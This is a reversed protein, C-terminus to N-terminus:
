TLSVLPLIKDVWLAYMPGSFHEGDTAIFSEDSAARRSIGTIDAYRAGKRRTEIKNAANYADIENAILARDRGEGSPTVGWDPISVVIVHEPQGGAFRIATQLLKAFETQYGDLTYGKEPGRYQNNVGILLTVMDYTDQINEAAIGVLLEDTTWGTVAVIKPKDMTIGKQGLRTALQIPFAQNAPVSEGCTYSDGLALYRYM